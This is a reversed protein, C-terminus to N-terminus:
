KCLIARRKVNILSIILFTSLFTSIAFASKAEFYFSLGAAILASWAACRIAILTRRTAKAAAEQRQKEEEIEALYEEKSCVIPNFGAGDLSQTHM